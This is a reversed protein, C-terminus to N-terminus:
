QDGRNRQQPIHPLLARSAAHMRQHAERYAAGAAPHGAAHARALEARAAARRHRRDDLGGLVFVVLLGLGLYVLWM